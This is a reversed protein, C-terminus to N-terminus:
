CVRSKAKNFAVKLSRPPYYIRAHIVESNLSSTNTGIWDTADLVVIEIGHKAIEREDAIGVIGAGIVVCNM